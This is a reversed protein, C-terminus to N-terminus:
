LEPTRGAPKLARLFLKYIQREDALEIKFLLGGISFREGEQPIRHLHHLIYGNLTRYGGAPIQLDLERNLEEIGIGADVLYEQRAIERFLRDKLDYEDEIEGFIEELIDELAVIGLASGDEGAVAAMMVGKRQMSRFLDPIMSEPDAFLPKRYIEAVAKELSPSRLLDLIHLMGVIKGPRGRYVPLRSYGSQVVLEMAQRVTSGESVSVVQDLPVLVERVRIESFDFIRRITRFEDQWLIESGQGFRRIWELDDEQVFPSEEERGRGKLESAVGHLWVAPATLPKLLWMFVGLPKAIRVATEEARKHFLVRPLIEGFVILLPLQVCLFLLLSQVAGLGEFIRFFLLAFFVTALGAFFVSGALLFHSIRGPDSLIRLLPLIQPEAKEKRELIRVKDSVVLSIESLAFFAEGLIGVCGAALLLLNVWM